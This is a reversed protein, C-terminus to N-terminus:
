WRPKRNRRKSDRDKVQVEREKVGVEAMKTAFDKKLNAEELGMQHEGQAMQLEHMDEAHRLQQELQAQQAQMEIQAQAEQMQAQRATLEQQMGQAEMQAQQGQLAQQQQAMQMQMQQQMMAQQQAQAQQQMMMKQAFAQEDGNGLPDWPMEGTMAVQHMAVHRKVAAQVEPPLMSFDAQKRYLNHQTIHAVHDNWEKIPTYQGEAMQRNELEAGQVDLQLEDFLEEASGMELLKLFKTNDPTGTKPDMFAGMQYLQTLFEQKASKSEPLVSAPIVEIDEAGGIDSANFDQVEVVKNKGVFRLQRAEKYDQKAIGLWLKGLRSWGNMISHATPGLLTDDQEQLYRIGVGSRVGAPVQGQSVEHQGFINFLSQMARDLMNMMYAPVQPAQQWEPRLGNVPNYKIIQGPISTIQSEVIGSGHPILLAPRATKNAIEVLQSEIRNIIKQHPIGAELASMGWFRGPVQIHKFEVFPLEANPTPNPGNYLLRGSAVVVLRGEPYEASPREWMEKVVATTERNERSHAQGTALTLLKHEYLNRNEDSGDPPVKVGYIEQIKDLPMSECHMIWPARAVSDYTPDVVVTFPSCVQVNIDGITQPNGTVENMIYPGKTADFWTKIIGTGTIVMWLFAQLRITDMELERWKADLFKTAMKAANIDQQEGTSGFAQWAHSSRTLKALEKRTLPQLQNNVVRVRWSPASPRELKQSVDNWTVWQDGVFFSINTYWQQHFTMDRHDDYRKEVAHLAESDEPSLAVALPERSKSFMDLFAM